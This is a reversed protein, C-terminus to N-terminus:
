RKSNKNKGFKPTIGIFIEFNIGPMPRSLVSLYEEDFLNNISGKLSLDAWRFSLQKELTVNNMFYPPLYGTLTYDNSSMTYRQSYYCWFFGKTTPLWIIWDDIHSDFWNIGGSLAYVNEKGVSFSLGVDYTFGHESKLDPNGGPLFYLDNLTPFRYNRSISAKAVINGKKSLVGDIFFAPIVPAWETGFMDERLVLSAAFHDVPRWKASVSGSFEVRGKDYGVVAKNGEQSIINKDASEVLHQHVSVGATFLWKESPAYDGDASGYFTNIKSRSRTMSAMEGNGKDRKYDYAMWTHIYGGKVGVKWKERVRDWSLVGRFTQERQRNEFDMDNGYDTSLMALERNSNIYWANLGFKDGEGTNYYIEQLVHLDKYAGSRNRETPYYSGIINKDEDYINEKKDRNRYKYDNPSSSYVVRTSSQWHKDGYTLRLFEDFTSFSGVGQVYQLGFGEHNAPSTSLRVLGGLGGGTENVSSTGHLLSADDIFYSPITSFDTMGLMPNNIRMGNWTVQTHSPSTGRFAVTSLTARGYNKVFVSSNFTLVDAMSLAINEKMAISDFRTRQVGIDKMPRKGVVTVEPIRLVRKTISVSNKQQAALLFPLSVGVFM